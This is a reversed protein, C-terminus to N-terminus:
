KESLRDAMSQFRKSWDNESRFSKIDEFEIKSRTAEEWLAGWDMGKRIQKVNSEFFRHKMSGFATSWVPIGLARLEYYKIPDVSDTLENIKFPILGVTFDRCHEIAQEVSCAPLLEINSPLNSPLNEMRPGILRVQQAPLALALEIVLEWDFWSAITGVFGIINNSAAQSIAPLRKMDYGNPVLSIDATNEYQSIKSSLTSDSCFIYDCKAAVRRTSNKMSVKSLGRYFAPFDDMVDMFVSRAPLANVAWVAIRSPRGVGIDWEGDALLTCLETKINEWFLIDNLCNIIPLPEIPLSRIKKVEIQPPVKSEILDSSKKSFYIFDSIQPLRTITPDIWILKEYVGGLLAQAMFHPRQWYSQYPVPAFFLLNM